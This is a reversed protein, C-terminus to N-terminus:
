FAQGDAPQSDNKGAAGFVAGVTCAVSTPDTDVNPDAKPEYSGFFDFFLANWENEDQPMQEGQHEAVWNKVLQKAEILQEYPRGQQMFKKCLWPMWPSYIKEKPKEQPVYVSTSSKKTRVEDCLSFIDAVHPFSSKIRAWRDFATSVVDAELGALKKAMIKSIAELESDSLGFRNVVNLEYLKVVITNYLM